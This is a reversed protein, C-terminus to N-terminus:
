TERLALELDKVFRAERETVREGFFGFRGSAAGEATARAIAIVWTRYQAAEEPTAQASLADRAKAALRLALEDITAASLEGGPPIWGGIAAQSGEEHAFVAQTVERMLSNNASIEAAAKGFEVMGGWLERMTSLTDSEESAMAAFLALRPLSVLTEWEEETFDTRTTM